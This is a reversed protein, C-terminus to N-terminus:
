EATTPRDSVETALGGIMGVMGNFSAALERYISPGTKKVRVKLDGNRVAEMAELLENLYNEGDGRVGKEKTIEMTNEEEQKM